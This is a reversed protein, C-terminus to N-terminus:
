TLQTDSVFCFNYMSCLVFITLVAAPAHKFQSKLMQRVKWTGVLQYQVQMLTWWDKLISSKMNQDKTITENNLKLLGSFKPYQMYPVSEM